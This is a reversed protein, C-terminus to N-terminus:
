CKKMGKLLTKALFVDKEVQLFLDDLNDFRKQSRIYKLFFVKVVKDYINENFDFIHVELLRSLNKGLTERKGVSIIGYFFRNDINIKGLFVGKPLIKDTQVFLNATPYKFKGALGRGKIVKAIVFFDYGLHKNAFELNGLYLARKIETSSIKFGKDDYVTPVSIININNSLGFKNLTYFNGESKNGYRFDEGIVISDINIDRKIINLFVDASLSIFAKNLKLFLVTDIGFTKDIENFIYLRERNKFIVSSYKQLLVNRYNNYFTLVLIKLNKNRNYESAFEFLKKHGIHIGDFAGIVIIYKNLDNLYKNIHLYDTFIFNM